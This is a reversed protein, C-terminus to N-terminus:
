KGSSKKLRKLNNRQRDAMHKRLDATPGFDNKSVLVRGVNPAPHDVLWEDQTIWDRKDASWVWEVRLIAIMIVAWGTQGSQTIYPRRAVRGNPKRKPQRVKLTKVQGDFQGPSEPKPLAPM